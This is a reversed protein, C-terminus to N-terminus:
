EQRFSRAITDTLPRLLYQLFTREATKILVDVPMGAQLRHTELRAFQEPAVDVMALYFAVNAREDVFRDASVQTITGEVVPTTRQNLTTFRLESVLGPVVWEIDQPQVQIEIRMRDNSPVIQMLEQGPMLVGGITLVKSGQVIGSAPALIDSRSLLDRSAVLRTALDAVQNQIEQLQALASEKFTQRIQIMQLRAEGVANEIRAIGSIDTGREGRLRAAERELSLIRTITVYGRANLKKLGILEREILDIQVDKYKQQIDLGSSEARYQEIRLNLISVQNGLLKRRDEFQREQLGLLEAIQTEGRRAELDAPFIISVADEREAVLRAELARAAVLQREIISYASQARVPDLRVLVDGVQVRDGERALIEGVIGGELHQVSKRKGEFVTTGQAIVASSFTATIAWVGFGGMTMLLIAVGAAIPLWPQPLPQQDPPLAAGNDTFPKVVSFQRLSNTSSAKMLSM